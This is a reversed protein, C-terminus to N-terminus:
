ALRQVNENEGEAPITIRIKTGSGKKSEITFIDEVGYFIRLREITGRLGFSIKQSDNRIEFIQQIEEESMGIGDDEVELITIESGRLARVTILGKEGKHKIGHYLANEVLPQLVLKLIKNKIIAEDIEYEVSFIDGYRIKQITLYNKVVEIEEGITIVESGKSLSTRYYSGLARMVNFVDENRGLLALSSIADFTNYLFHPKIQAQLVNLEAKRKVKQEDVVKHILNQIEGIMINYGDRLKGIEDNGAQIDVKKFDGKEVGKMSNLLKKIPTTILRSIFITGIFLLLSNVAIIIFAIISFISSDKSLENFPMVSIIRWGYRSINLHSVLYEVGKVRELDSGIEGEKPKQFLQGISENKKDNAGIIANNKEDLIVINTDYKSIIDRYSNIFSNESINIILVGLTKQTYIDNIIRILSIYNENSSNNFVGGANMRLIYGGNVLRAQQYWEAEKLDSIKLSSLPLKDVGFRQSNEDFIYISSIFPFAEMFKATHSYIKKQADLDAFNRAAALNEPAGQSNKYLQSFNRLKRLPEQVDESTVIVKSLNNANEIMSVINANISYLTQISVDSVKQSMINSYIKQYLVSSLAFSFILLVFYFLMIKTSIKLDAIKEKIIKYGGKFINLM